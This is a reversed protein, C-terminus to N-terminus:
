LISLLLFIFISFHNFIEKIPEFLNECADYDNRPAKHKTAELM